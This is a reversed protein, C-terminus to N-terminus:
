RPATGPSGGPEQREGVTDSELTVTRGSRGRNSDIWIQVTNARDGPALEVWADRIDVGRPYVRFSGDDEQVYAATERDPQGLRIRQEVPRRLVIFLKAHPGAGYVGRGVWILVGEVGAGQLFEETTAAQDGPRDVVTLGGPAPQWEYWVIELRQSGAIWLVVPDFLLASSALVLVLLGLDARLGVALRRRSLAIGFAGGLIWATSLPLSIAGAMPGLLLAVALVAVLGFLVGGLWGLGVQWWSRLWDAHALLAAVSGAIFAFPVTLLLFEPLDRAGYGQNEVLAVSAVVVATALVILAARVCAAGPTAVANPAPRVAEDRGKSGNSQM